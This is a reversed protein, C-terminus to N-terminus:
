ANERWRFAAGINGFEREIASYDRAHAAIFEAFFETM